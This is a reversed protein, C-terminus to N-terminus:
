AQLGGGVGASDKQEGRRGWLRDGERLPHLGRSEERLHRQLYEKGFCQRAPNAQGATSLLVKVDWDFM